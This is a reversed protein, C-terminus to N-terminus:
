ASLGEMDSLMDLLNYRIRNLSLQEDQNSIIGKRSENKTRNYRSELLIIDNELEPNVKKLMTRTMDIAKQLEDKAVMQRIDDVSFGPEDDPASSESASDEEKAFLDDYERRDRQELFKALDLLNLEFTGAESIDNLQLNFRNFLFQEIEGKTTFVKKLSDHLDHFFEGLLAKEDIENLFVEFDRRKIENQDGNLPKKLNQNKFRFPRPIDMQFFAEGKEEKEMERFFSKKGLRSELILHLIIREHNWLFVPSPHKQHIVSAEEIAKLAKPYDRQAEYVRAELIRSRLDPPWLSRINALQRSLERDNGLRFHMKAEHYMLSSPETRQPYRALLKAIEQLSLEDGEEITKDIQLSLYFELERAPAKEMVDGAVTIGLRTALAMYIALPLETLSSELYPRMDEQFYQDILYPSEELKLRHYLYEARDEPTKAGEYFAIANEHILKAKERDEQVILEYLAVRLDQRFTLSGHSESLLFTEKQLREYIAEAQLANIEGLSCPGALVHQIVAPNIKRVLMGPVAMKRVEEDHIHDLNRRVLQGQIRKEDIRSFLHRTQVGGIGEGDADNQKVVEAALQLTLPNGGLKRAIQAALADDKVGKAKLYGRAAQEDFTTLHMKEFKLSTAVLDSRGVVIPRFRPVAEGVEQLFQFLNNLESFTARYQAEEFSDLVLLVPIDIRSLDEEFRSLYQRHIAELIIGRSSGRSKTKAGRDARSEGTELYTLIDYRIDDFLGAHQPFQIKLQHLGEAALQLPESISLGPRDFDLYIFPIKRAVDQEAHQLIFKAILTSKGIGGIGSLLLPPKERWNIVQRFLKEAKGILTRQPLWDIYKTIRDLESARGQFNETLKRFPRLLEERKILSNIEEKDPLSLDTVSLWEVLRYILVLQSLDQKSLEPMNGNIMSEYLRQSDDSPRAKRKQLTPLLLKQSSLFALSEQRQHDRLSYLGTKKNQFCKELLFAVDEEEMKYGLVAQTEAVIDEIRFQIQLAALGLFPKEPRKEKSENLIDQILQDLDIKEQEM